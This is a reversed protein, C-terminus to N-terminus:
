RQAYGKLFEFHSMKAAIACTNENCSCLCNKDKAWQLIEIDGCGQAINNTFIEVSWGLEEVDWKINNPHGHRAALHCVEGSGVESFFRPTEHEM